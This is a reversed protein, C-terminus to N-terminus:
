QRRYLSSAIEKDRPMSHEVYTDYLVIRYSSLSLTTTTGVTNEKKGEKKKSGTLSPRSRLPPTYTIIVGKLGLSHSQSSYEHWTWTRIRWSLCRTIVSYQCIEYVNVLHVTAICKFCELGRGLRVGKSNRLCGSITGTIDFLIECVNCPM